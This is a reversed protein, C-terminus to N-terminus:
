KGDALEQVAQIVGDLGAQEASTEEVAVQRATRGDQVTLTFLYCDNCTGSSYSDKELAFFGSGQIKDLLDAVQARELRMSEKGNVLLRGDAFIQWEQVRGAFGGTRRLVVVAADYPTNQAAPTHTPAGTTTGLGDPTYTPTVKEGSVSTPVTKGGPAAAPACAGLLFLSFLLILVLSSFRLPM